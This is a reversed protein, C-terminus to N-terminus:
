RFKEARVASAVLEHGYVSAEVPWIEQNANAGPLAITAYAVTDFKPTGCM